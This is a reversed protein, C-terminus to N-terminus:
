ETTRRGQCVPSNGVVCMSNELDKAIATIRLVKRKNLDIMLLLLLFQYCFSFLFFSNLDILHTGTLSDIGCRTFWRPFTFSELKEM